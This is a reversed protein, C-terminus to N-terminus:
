RAFEIFRTERVLHIKIQGPYDLESEIRNKIDRSLLVMEDDNIKDPYVLVRIERGAQIAFSKNVSDYSNAINELNELRKIYNDLTERRAGPRAASLTDAAIVLLAENTQPEIDWHHAEVCHIVQANEKYKKILKVGLEVHTGELEHDISKGIDHLLGGRKAIKVDAGMESALIAAFSAVEISHKLVNQGFSTRYNLRGVYKVLEPNMNHIGLEFLANEGLERIREELESQVKEVTEEIRTPHIRGDVILKELSLRAVERRLADHCSLIVAEPTDDIILDVGTIQEFSKINRGERGIIRGKMDDSPLDVVSVTSEAVYDSAGRQIAIALIEKAYKDATEKALNESEKVLLASERTIDKRLSDLLIEKAEDVSLESIRQLEEIKKEESLSLEHAKKDLESQRKQIKEEKKDLQAIKKDLQEEKQLYRKEINQIEVRREKLEKEQNQRIQQLEEKGELLKIKKLNESEVKAEEIIKDAKEKANSLLQKSFFSKIILVLIISLVFSFILSIVLNGFISEM